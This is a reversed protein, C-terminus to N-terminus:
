KATFDAPQVKIMESYHGEGKANVNLIRYYTPTSSAKQDIFTYNDDAQNKNIMAVTEFHVGDISRQLIYFAVDMNETAQWTVHNGVSTHTVSVSNEPQVSTTSNALLSNMTFLSIIIFLTAKNFM